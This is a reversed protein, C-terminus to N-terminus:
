QLSRAIASASRTPPLRQVIGKTADLRVCSLSQTLNRAIAPLQSERMLLPLDLRSLRAWESKRRAIISGLSSGTGHGDIVADVEPLTRYFYGDPSGLWGRHVFRGAMELHLHIKWTGRCRSTRNTGAAIPMSKYSSRSSHGSPRPRCTEGM